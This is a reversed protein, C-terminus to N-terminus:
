VLDAMIREVSRFHFLGAILLVGGLLCSVWAWESLPVSGIISWRIGEVVGAMPNLYYAWHYQEPIISAPYAVPTVYLGIQVVFPVVHQFDRYRVTLSSIWIGIGLAAVVDFVVFVPFLIINSSVPFEYYVLVALLFLLTVAFDVFGTLAKSLPIILRPFYVKKVMEQAGIVSQGSQALVYAFYSWALLGTLAFIPYPAGGTEVQLANGFIVTFILLTALPQIFAWILGLFTQAYRVRLDRWALLLFLDRYHYLERFDVMRRIRTADIVTRM